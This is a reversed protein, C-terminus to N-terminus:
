GVRWIRSQLDAVGAAVQAPLTENVRIGGLDM